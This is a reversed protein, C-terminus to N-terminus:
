INAKIYKGNQLNTQNDPNYTKFFYFLIYPRIESLMRKYIYAQKYCNISINTIQTYYEFSLISLIGNITYNYLFITDTYITITQRCLKKCKQCNQLNTKPRNILTLIIYKYLQSFLFGCIGYYIFLYIFLFRIFILTMQKEIQSGRQKDVLKGLQQRGISDFLVNQMKKINCIEENETKIQVICKRKRCRFLKCKNVNQM